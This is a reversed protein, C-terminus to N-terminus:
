EGLTYMFAGTTTLAERHQNAHHQCFVLVGGSPLAVTVRAPVKADGCGLGDCTATKTTDM